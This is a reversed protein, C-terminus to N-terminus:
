HGFREQASQRTIGLANGIDAWSYGGEARMSTVAKTTVDAVVDRLRALAKLSDIDWESTIQRGSAIIIREAFEVAKLGDSASRREEPTKVSQQEAWISM